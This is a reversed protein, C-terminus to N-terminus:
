YLLALNTKDLIKIHNNLCSGMRYYISFLKFKSVNRLKQVPYAILKFFNVRNCLFKHREDVSLVPTQIQFFDESEIILLGIPINGYVTITHQRLQNKILDVEGYCDGRKLKELLQNSSTFQIMTTSIIATGSLIIYYYLPIHGQRIIVRSPEFEQYFALQAIKRQMHLPFTLFEPVCFNLSLQVFRLMEDTRESSKLKLIRKAEDPFKPEKPRSYYHKDFIYDKEDSM